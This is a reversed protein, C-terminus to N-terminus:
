RPSGYALRHAEALASDLRAGTAQTLEAPTHWAPDDIPLVQPLGADQWDARERALIRSDTNRASYLLATNAHQRSDLRQALWAALPALCLAAIKDLPRFAAIAAQTERKMLGKRWKRWAMPLVRRVAPHLAPISAFPAEVMWDIEVGPHCRHIDSVAPLAHVVDGMSTTKVILLRM